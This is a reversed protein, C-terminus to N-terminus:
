EFDVVATQRRHLQCFTLLGRRAGKRTQRGGWGVGVRVFMGGGVVCAVGRCVRERRGVQLPTDGWRDKAQWNVSTLREIGSDEVADAM